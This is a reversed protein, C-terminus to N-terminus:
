IIYVKITILKTNGNVYFTCFYDSVRYMLVSMRVANSFFVWSNEKSECLGCRTIFIRWWDITKFFVCVCVFLREVVVSITLFPLINNNINNNNCITIFNYVPIKKLTTTICKTIINLFFKIFIILFFMCSIGTTHNKWMIQKENTLVM